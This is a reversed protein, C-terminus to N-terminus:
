LKLKKIILQIFSRLFVVFLVLVVISSAIEVFLNVPRSIVYEAYLSFCVIFLVFLILTKIM